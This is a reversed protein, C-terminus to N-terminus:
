QPSNSRGLDCAPKGIFGYNSDDTAVAELIDVLCAVLGRDSLKSHFLTSASVSVIKECMKAKDGTCHSNDLPANDYNAGDVVGAV